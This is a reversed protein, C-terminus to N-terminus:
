EEKLIAESRSVFDRVLKPQTGLFRLADAVPDSKDLDHHYNFNSIVGKKPAQPATPSITTQLKDNGAANYFFKVEAADLTLDKMVWPGPLIFTGKIYAGPDAKPLLGLFNFGAATYSVHPLARIYKAALSSLSGELLSELSPSHDLVQLRDGTVVFEIGNAYRVRSVAPTTLTQDDAIKWSKDVIDIKELFSPHLITPNHGQAIVVVNAHLIEIPM